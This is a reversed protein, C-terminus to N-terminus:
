EREEGVIEFWVGRGKCKCVYYVHSTDQSLAYPSIEYQPREGCTRCRMQEIEGYSARRKNAQKYRANYEDTKQEYPTRKRAMKSYGKSM